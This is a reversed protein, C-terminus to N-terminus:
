WWEPPEAPEPPALGEEFVEARHSEIEARRTRGARQVLRWLVRHDTAVGVLDSLLRAAQRYPFSAALRWAREWVFASCTQHPSLGIARDLPFSYRGDKRTKWRWYRIPGLRTLLYRRVRRQRAGSAPLLEAEWAGLAEVLAKRGAAMAARHITRELKALTPKGKPWHIEVTLSITRM